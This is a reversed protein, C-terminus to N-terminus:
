IGFIDWVDRLVRILLAKSLPVSVYALPVAGPGGEGEAEGEHGKLTL